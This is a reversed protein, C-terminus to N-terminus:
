ANTDGKSNRLQHSTSLDKDQRAIVNKLNDTEVELSCCKKRIQNLEEIICRTENDMLILDHRDSATAAILAFLLGTVILAYTILLIIIM